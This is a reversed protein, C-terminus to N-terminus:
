WIFKSQNKMPIFPFFVQTVEPLKPYSRASKSATVYM